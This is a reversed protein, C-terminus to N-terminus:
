LGDLGISNKCYNVGEKAHNLCSHKGPSSPNWPGTYDYAMINIFDFANLAENTLLTYKTQSPFAATLGLSSSSLKEKLELIFDSYGATVADWEM